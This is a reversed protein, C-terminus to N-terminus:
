LRSEAFVEVGREDNGNVSEFRGVGVIEPVIKGRLDGLTLIREYLRFDRLWDIMGQLLQEKGEGLTWEKFPM